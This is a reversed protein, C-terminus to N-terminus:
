PGVRLLSAGGVPGGLSEFRGLSLRLRPRLRLRLRAGVRKV